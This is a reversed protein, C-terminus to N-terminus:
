WLRNEVKSGYDCGLAIAYMRIQKQVSKRKSSLFSNKTGLTKSGGEKRALILKITMSEKMNYVRKIRELVRQRRM